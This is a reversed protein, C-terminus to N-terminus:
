AIYVPTLVHESCWMMDCMYAESCTRFVVDHWVYISWFMHYISIKVRLLCTVCSHTM